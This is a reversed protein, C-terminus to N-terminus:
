INGATFVFTGSFAAVFMTFGALVAAPRTFFGLLILLGGGFEAFAAMFGWFGHAFDLGVLSMNAGLKAWKDPGGMMKPWGHLTLQLGIGLRLVLLGTDIKTTDLFQKIKQKM